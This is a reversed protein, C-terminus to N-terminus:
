AVGLTARVRAALIEYREFTTASLFHEVVEPAEFQEGNRFQDRSIDVLLGSPLRNYAHRDVRVGDRVVGSVVVDGGLYDRVVLATVACNGWARNDEDWVGPEETTDPGWSARIAEQLEALTVFPPADARPRLERVWREGDQEFGCRALVDDRGVLRRTNAARAIADLLVRLSPEDGHPESVAVEDGDRDLRVSADGLGFRRDGLSVVSM